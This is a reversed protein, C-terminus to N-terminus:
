LSSPPLFCDAKFIFWCLHISPIRHFPEVIVSTATTSLPYSQVGFTGFSQPSLSSDSRTMGKGTAGTSTSNVFVPTRGQSGTESPCLATAPCRIPAWGGNEGNLSDVFGRLCMQDPHCGEGRTENPNLSGALCCLQVMGLGEAQRHAEETCQPRSATQGPFFFM